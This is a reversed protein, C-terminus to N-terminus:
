QPPDFSSQWSTPSNRDLDLVLRAIAPSKQFQAVRVQKVGYRNVAVLSNHLWPVVETAQLDLIIRDPNAVRSTSMKPIGNIQLALGDAGVQINNKIVKTLSVQGEVITNTEGGAKKSEIGGRSLATQLEYDFNAYYSEQVPASARAPASTTKSKTPGVAISEKAFASIGFILVISFLNSSAKIM